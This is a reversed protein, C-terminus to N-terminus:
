TECFAIGVNPKYTFLMTIQFCPGKQVVIGVHSIELFKGM